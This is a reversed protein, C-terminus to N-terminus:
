HSTKQKMLKTFYRNKIMTASRNEFQEAIKYFKTGMKGILDLLKCDEEISFPRRNFKKSIVNVYRGRLQKQEKDPMLKAILAWNHGHEAVLNKLKADEEPTFKGKILTMDAETVKNEPRANVIIPIQRPMTFDSFTFDEFLDPASDLQVGLNILVGTDQKELGLPQGMESDLAIVPDISSTQTQFPSLLEAKMGDYECVKIQNFIM